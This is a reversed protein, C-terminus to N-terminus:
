KAITTDELTTSWGILQAPQWDTGLYRGNIPAKNALIDNIQSLTLHNPTSSYNGEWYFGGHGDWIAVHGYNIGDSKNTLNWYVPVMVGQPFDTNYHMTGKAVAKNAAIKASYSRGYSIHFADDVYGLCLGPQGYTNVSPTIVQKLSNTPTPTVNNNTTILDQELVHDNHSGNTYRVYYEYNSNSNKPIRTKSVVTGQWNRHNVLNYGNNEAWANSAITVASGVDFKSQVAPLTTIDQELVHDNHSGNPYSVYYEFDSNSTHPIQTKSIITGQWNRHNVLNYGNNEAWANSAIQVYQGVSFQSQKPTLSMNLDQELVHDNHSGDSYRVYYEYDSNSTHPIRTKSVVTGQWDRHNVLNYGNSEAWANSAISVSQGTEFKSQTNPLTGLDQELVHDNHSGNTYRVYYEYNSNSTRPIQKKSVITGEWNRHNVLNYGNSEAWANGSLRVFQGTSYKSQVNSVKILDQELVHDNHYNNPYRVYYEYNSNSKRTIQKKSVVTGQWNRHNALNYGNSEAWANSAIQVIDGVNASDAHVTTFGLLMVSAGLSLKILNKNLIHM